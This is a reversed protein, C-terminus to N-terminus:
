VNQSTIQAIDLEPEEKVIDATSASLISVKASVWSKLVEGAEFTDNVLNIRRASITYSVESFSRECESSMASIAFLDFAMQALNPYTNQQDRWWQLPNRIDDDKEKSIYKIYEDRLEMAPVGSIETASLLGHFLDDEGDSVVFNAIPTHRQHSIAVKDQYHSTWLNQVRIKSAQLLSQKNRRGWLEQISDWKHKPNLIISALLVASRNTKRLYNESKNLPLIISTKLHASAHIDGALRSHHEELSQIFCEM